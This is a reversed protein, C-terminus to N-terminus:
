KTPKIFKFYEWVIFLWVPVFTAMAMQITETYAIENQFISFWIISSMVIPLVLFSLTIRIKSQRFKQNLNLFIGVTSLSIFLASATAIIESFFPM